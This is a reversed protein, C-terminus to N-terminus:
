SAKVWLMENGGRQLEYDVQQLGVKFGSAQLKKMIPEVYASAKGNLQVLPFVRVESSVRLMALISAHHFDCDFLDSYLFLFHSCLALDFKREDIGSLTPLEGIVYRGQQKGREYDEVFKELTRERNKRLDDPSQHYTWVWNEPTSKVQQIIGDVVKLFQRQIERESFVYLPDLSIVEHGRQQMEANFSAPGDGVGLIRKLLDKGSLNFMKQYEDFSRGFPVVHDLILSM